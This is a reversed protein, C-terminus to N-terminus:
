KINIFKHLTQSFIDGIVAVDIIALSVVFYRWFIYQSVIKNGLFWAM